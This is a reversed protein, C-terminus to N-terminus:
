PSAGSSTTWQQAIAALDGYDSEDTSPSLVPAPEPHPPDRQSVPKSAPEIPPATSERQMPTANPAPSASPPEPPTPIVVDGPDRSLGLNRGLVRGLREADKVSVNLIMQNIEKHARLLAEEDVSEKVLTRAYKLNLKHRLLSLGSAYSSLIAPVPQYIRDIPNLVWITGIDIPNYKLYAGDKEYHPDTYLDSACNSKDDHETARRILSLEDCNYYLVNFEIGYPHVIRRTSRGLYIRVEESSFNLVM